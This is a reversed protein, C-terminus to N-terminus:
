PRTFHARHRADIERQVRHLVLIDDGFFHRHDDFHHGIATLMRMHHVRGAFAIQALFAFAQADSEVFLGTPRPGYAARGPVKTLFQQLVIEVLDFVADTKGVFAKGIQFTHADLVHDVSRKSKCGIAIRQNTGHGAHAVIPGCTTNHCAKGLATADSQHQRLPHDFALWLPVNHRHIHCPKAVPDCGAVRQGFHDFVILLSERYGVRVLFQGCCAGM